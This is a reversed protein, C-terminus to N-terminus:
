ENEYSSIIKEIDIKSIFDKLNFYKEKQSSNLKKYVTNPIIKIETNKLKISNNIINEDIVINNEEFPINKEKLIETIYKVKKKTNRPLSNEPSLDINTYIKKNHISYNDLSELGIIMIPVTLQNQMPKLHQLYKEYSGIAGDFGGTRKFDDTACIIIGASTNIAKEVHNLESALVLKILNWAVASGHNFAVEIAIEPSAFDITWPNKDNTSSPRYESENFIPVQSHWHKKKTLKENIM